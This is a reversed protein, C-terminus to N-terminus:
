ITDSLYALQQALSAKARQWTQKAMNGSPRNGLWFRDFVYQKQSPTLKAVAERIDKEHYALCREGTPDPNSVISLFEHNLDVPSGQTYIDPYKKGEHGSGLPYKGTLIEQMRRRAAVGYFGQPKGPQKQMVQWAKIWGEQVLDEIVNTDDTLNRAVRGLYTDFHEIEDAEM